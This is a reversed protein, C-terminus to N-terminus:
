SFQMMGKREGPRDTWWTDTREPPCVARRDGFIKVMSTRLHDSTDKEAPQLGNAWDDARGKLGHLAMNLTKPDDWGYIVKLRELERFYREVKEEPKGQFWPMRIQPGVEDPMNFLQRAIPKNTVPNQPTSPKVTVPPSSKSGM